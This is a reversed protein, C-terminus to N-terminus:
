GRDSQLSREIWGFLGPNDRIVTALGNTLAGVAFEEEINEEPMSWVYWVAHILEHLLTNGAKQADMTPDLRIVGTEHDCEGDSDEDKAQQETWLELRYTRYGVKVSGPLGDFVVARSM